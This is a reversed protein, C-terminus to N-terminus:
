ALYLVGLIAAAAYVVTLPTGVKLFDSFTYGGPGYVMLNTQYGVPNMFSASAGYCIILYLGPQLGPLSQDISYVVPFMISVTAVNSIFSTLIATVTFIIVLTGSYGASDLLPKIQEVMFNAAGSNILSQGLALSFVLVGVLELNIDAKLDKYSYLGLAMLLLVMSLLFVFFEMYGTAVLIAGVATLGLFFQSKQKNRSTPLAGDIESIVLFDASQEKFFTEDKDTVLLLLDGTHFVHNGINERIKEGARSVALIASSFQQRFDSEKVTQNIVSSGATVIVELLRHKGKMFYRHQDPFRLGKIRKSLEIVAEKNGSFFLTDGAKIEDDPNVPFFSTDGRRIEHLFAKKLNRLGADKVTVNEIQSGSDVVMEIFYEASHTEFDNILDGRDPMMKYGLTALFVLGSVAIIIGILTFDFYSFLPAEQERMLGILVLNTSTGIVTTIGGLITAFSLAMLFRSPPFRNTKAWRYVYPTMLAVIPTNNFAASVISVTGILRNYFGRSTANERFWVNMYEELSFNRMIASAIITLLIVIAISINSFGDLAEKPGIIKFLILVIVGMMMVLSPPYRDLYLVVVLIALVILTVVVSATLM